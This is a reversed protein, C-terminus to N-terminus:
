YSNNIKQVSRGIAEDKQKTFDTERGNKRTYQKVRKLFKQLQVFTLVAYMAFENCM